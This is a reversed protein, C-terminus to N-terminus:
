SGLSISRNTTTSSIISNSTFNYNATILSGNLITTNSVNNSIASGLTWEGGVGDFNLVTGTLTVGNTTITKGSTIARFNLTAGTTGTWTFNTAPLTMSGYVDLVATAGMSLTMAGDLAGGAGGTSFDNCVAPAASTGTITVTFAGTGVNSGADFIVDDASTPPGFGNAGGSANSWNTTSTANWNGSGGVWYYTAM